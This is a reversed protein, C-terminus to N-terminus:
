SMKKQPRLGCGEGGAKTGPPPPPSNSRLGRGHGVAHEGALPGPHWVAHPVAEQVIGVETVAGGAAASGTAGSIGGIDANCFHWRMDGRSYRQWQPNHPQRNWVVCVSLLECRTGRKKKGDTVTLNDLPVGGKNRCQLDAEGRSMPLAGTPRGPLWQPNGWPDNSHLRGRSGDEDPLNAQGCSLGRQM